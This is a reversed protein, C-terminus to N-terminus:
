QATRSPEEPAKTAEAAAPQALEWGAYRTAARLSGLSGLGLGLVLGLILGIALGAALASPRRGGPAGGAPPSSVSEYTGGFMGAYHSARKRGYAAAYNEM